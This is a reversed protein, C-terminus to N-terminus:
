GAQYDALVINTPVKKYRQNYGNWIVKGPRYRPNCLGINVVLLHEATTVGYSEVLFHERAETPNNATVVMGAHQDYDVPDTRTVLYLYKGRNRNM